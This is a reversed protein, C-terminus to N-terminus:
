IKQLGVWGGQTQFCMENLHMCHERPHFAEAEEQRNCRMYFEFLGLFSYQRNEQKGQHLAPPPSLPRRLRAQRNVQPKGTLVLSVLTGSCSKSPCLFGLQHKRATWGQWAFSAHDPIALENKIARQRKLAKRQKVAQQTVFVGYIMHGMAHNVQYIMHPTHQAHLQPIRTQEHTKIFTPEIWWLM